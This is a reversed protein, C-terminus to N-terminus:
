FSGPVSLKFNEVALLQGIRQSRGRAQTMAGISPPADWEANHNCQGQLNLRTSGVHWSGIFLHYGPDETFVKVLERPLESAYYVSQLKLAQFCACLLFQNASLSCWIIWRKHLIVLGLQAIIRLMYNQLDEVYSLSFDPFIM